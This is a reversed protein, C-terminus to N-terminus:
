RCSGSTGVQTLTGVIQEREELMSKTNPSLTLTFVRSEAFVV